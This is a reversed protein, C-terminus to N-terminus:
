EIESKESAEENDWASSLGGNVRCSIKKEQRGNIEAEM